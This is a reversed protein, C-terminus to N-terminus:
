NLANKETPLAQEGDMVLGYDELRLELRKLANLDLYQDAYLLYVPLIRTPDEGLIQDVIGYLQRPTVLLEAFVIARVQSLDWTLEIDSSLVLAAAGAAQVFNAIIEDRQKESTVNGFIKPIGLAQSIETVVDQHHAFIIMKGSQQQRYDKLWDIARTVKQLGLARLLSLVEARDIWKPMDALGIPQMHIQARLGPDAARRVLCTARLKRYLAALREQYLRNGYTPNRNDLPDRAQMDLFKGLHEFETEKGLIKILERLDRPSINEPFDTVLFRYNTRRALAATIKTRRASINKVFHAQDIIIANFRPAEYPLGMGQELDHYDVLWLSRKPTQANVCSREVIKVDAPLYERALDIWPQREEDRCILVCPFGRVQQTAALAIIKQDIANPDAIICSRTRVAYFVAAKLYASLEGVVDQALPYPHESSQSLIIRQILFHEVLQEPQEVSLNFRSNNQVSLGHKQAFDQAAGVMARTAPYTVYAKLYWDFNALGTRRMEATWDEPLDGWNIEGLNNIYPKVHM